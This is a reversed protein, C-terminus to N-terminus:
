TYLLRNPAGAVAVDRHRRQHAHRATHVALVQSGFPDSGGQTPWVFFVDFLVFFVPMNM